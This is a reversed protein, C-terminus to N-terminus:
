FFSCVLSSKAEDNIIKLSENETTGRNTISFDAKSVDQGRSGAQPMCAHLSIAGSPCAVRYSGVQLLTSNRFPETSLTSMFESNQRVFFTNRVPWVPKLPLQSDRQSWCRPASTM